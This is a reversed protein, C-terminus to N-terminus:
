LEEKFKELALVVQEQTMGSADNWQAIINDPSKNFAAEEKTVQGSTVLWKAFVERWPRTWRTGCMMMQSGMVCFGEHPSGFTGKNWGFYKIGQIIKKTQTKLTDM